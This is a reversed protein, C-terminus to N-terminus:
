IQYEELIDQGCSVLKAGEQILHHCGESNGTSISGPVAFVDRGEELAREATILSGSRMKAEILVVGRSLGAIIRNREPFHYRLPKESPGYETLLLYHSAIYNQLKINEKPYYVDLGTGIVAITKLNSKIASIHSKSDIGKALGSVIVFNETIEKMLKEIAREGEKSSNRSGVFALKPFNLLELDGQYFLLSPPNYIERLAEPYIDDLISFSPFKKFDERLKQNDIQRYNELFHSLSKVNAIQGVQRITLKKSLQHQRYFKILKNVGRNTMGSVKYRYIDFNTIKM